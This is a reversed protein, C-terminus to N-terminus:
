ELKKRIRLARQIDAESVIGELHGGEAVIVSETENEAMVKATKDLDDEPSVLPLDKHMIDEVRVRSRLEPAVRAADGLAAMGELHGDEVVPYNEHQENRIIDVFTRLDMEPDVWVLKQGKTMLDKVKLGELSLSMITAGEEQSAGIYVFFAVAILLIGRTGLLFGFFGLAVALIRGVLAAISTAKLYPMHEALFGRLVRGGDMPFAPVFLNFGGLVINAVGLWGFVAHFVTTGPFLYFFIGVLIGGLVISTLPGAAAMRLEIHPDRPIDEIASAGGLVFLTISKIKIGYHQAVWSHALEHLLLTSFFLITLAFGAVLSLFGTGTAGFIQPAISFWYIFLPLAILFTIHLKIPIGTIRAITFSSKFM